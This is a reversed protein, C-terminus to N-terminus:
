FPNQECKSVCNSCGLSQREETIVFSKYSSSRLLPTTTYEISRTPDCSQTMATMRRRKHLSQVTSTFSNFRIRRWKHLSQVALMFHIISIVSSKQKAGRYETDTNYAIM